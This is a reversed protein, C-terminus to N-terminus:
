NRNGNGHQIKYDAENIDQDKSEVFRNYERQFDFRIRSTEGHRHKAIDLIVCGEHEKVDKFLFAVIDADQEISGSERLDSLKPIISDRNEVNRNMQSLALVPCDLEKAMTKLMRSIKSIEQTRGEDGRGDGSMLGIYDVIILDLKKGSSIVQNRCKSLMNAATIMTTDDVYVQSKGLKFDAKWLKDFGDNNLHAKQISSMELESINALLRQALQAKSMELSFFAIQKEPQSLAIKLLINLAFTTKGVAPRAALIILDSNALGGVKRDFIDYGTKTVFSEAGQHIIEDIRRMVESTAVGIHVLNGTRIDSGLDYIKKEASRLVKDVDREVYADEIIANCSDILRRATYHRKIIEMYERYNASSVVSTYLEGIYSLTNDDTMNKREMYDHVTVMDPVKSEKVIAMIATYIKQHLPSYFAEASKLEEVATSAAMNDVLMCGLLKAEAEESHPKGKAELAEYLSKKNKTEKAM